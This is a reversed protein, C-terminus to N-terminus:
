RMMKFPTNELSVIDGYQERSKAFAPETYWSLNFEDEIIDAIKCNIANLSPKSNTSNKLQQYASQQLQQFGLPNNPHLMDYFINLLGLWDPTGLYRRSFGSGIFLYPLSSEFKLLKQLDNM